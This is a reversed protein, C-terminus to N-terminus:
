ERFPLGVKNKKVKAKIDVGVIREIGKVTRAIKGTQALWVIQSCYFDLAKGGSRTYADGFTVGINDRVQSIVALTCNYQAMEQCLRRFLASMQKAKNMAYTGEDIARAKEAEDSLADLSDLIYFGPTTH